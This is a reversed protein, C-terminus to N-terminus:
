RGSGSTPTRSSGAGGARRARAPARSPKAGLSGSVAYELFLTGTRPYVRHGILRLRRRVAPEPLFRIGGGLLVPVLGVDVGDVLDGELLNRFLDGGGFLWIDKGPKAKLEAIAVAPDAVVTVGRCDAPRLTRSVVITRKGPMAGGGMARAAEYSRRGMLLTDYGAFLAGFDIDPDMPIWDAEGQPGAIYGDLSMAVSYRVQRAV